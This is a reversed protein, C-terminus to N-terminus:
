KTENADDEEKNSNRSVVSVTDPIMFGYWSPTGDGEFMTRFWGSQARDIDNWVIWPQPKLAKYYASAKPKDLREYLDAITENLAAEALYLRTLMTDVVAFYMSYPYNKRFAEGEKIAEGVLAQDRRPNPLAM